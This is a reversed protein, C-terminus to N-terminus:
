KIDISYIDHETELKDFRSFYVKNNKIEPFWLSDDDTVLKTEGTKLNTVYIGMHYDENLTEVKYDWGQGIPIIKYTRESVDLLYAILDEDSSVNYASGEKRYVTITGDDNKVQKEYNETQIFPQKNKGDRDMIWIEEGISTQMDKNFVYLIRGDSTFEPDECNGENTTLYRTEKTELDVVTIAEYYREYKIKDGLKYEIKDTNYRRKLEEIDEETLTYTKEEIYDSTFAIEKGDPSWSINGIKALAVDEPNKGDSDVTYILGFGPAFSRFFAIKQSDPSFAPFMDCYGQTIIKELGNEQLIIESSTTFQNIDTIKAYVLKGDKDVDVHLDRGESQVVLKPQNINYASLTVPATSLMALASLSALITKLTKKM